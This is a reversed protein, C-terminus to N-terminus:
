RQSAQWRRAEDMLGEVEREKAEVYPQRRGAFRAFLDRKIAAYRAAADPEARLFDRFLRYGDIESSSAPLVHLHALRKGGEVRRFFLHGTDDFAGPRHDYGAAALDDVRTLVAELDAVVGLIDITPKGLMGPVATSGIHEVSLFLDPAAALLAAREAEFRRAGSRCSGDTRM